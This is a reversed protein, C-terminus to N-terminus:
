ARRWQRRANIDSLADFPSRWTLMPLQYVACLAKFERQDETYTGKAAKTEAPLWLGNIGVLLDTPRGIQVVFAGAKRAAEVIEAGNADARHVRRRTVRM